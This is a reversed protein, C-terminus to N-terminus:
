HIGLEGFCEPARTQPILFAPQLFTDRHPAPHHRLASILLYLELLDRFNLKRENLGVTMM